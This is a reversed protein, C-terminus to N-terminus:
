GFLLNTYYSLMQMSGGLGSNGKYGLRVIENPRRLMNGNLTFNYTDNVLTFSALNKGMVRLCENVTDETTTAYTYSNYEDFLNEFKNNESEAHKIGESRGLMFFDPMVNSVLGRKEHNLFVKQFFDFFWSFFILVCNSGTQTSSCDLFIVNKWLKGVSKMDVPNFQVSKIEGHYSGLLPVNHESEM